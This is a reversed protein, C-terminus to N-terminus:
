ASEKKTNTTNNTVANSGFHKLAAADYARAAETEDLFLGLSTTKGPTLSSRARWKGHQKDISVGKFRSSCNGSRKGCLRARASPNSERLGRSIDAAHLRQHEARTMSQLNELRNDLKNHNKHHIGWGKPLRGHHSEWVHQHVRLRQRDVTVCLYGM